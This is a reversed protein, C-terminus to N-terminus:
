SKGVRGAEWRGGTQEAFVLRKADQCMEESAQAGIDMKNGSFM